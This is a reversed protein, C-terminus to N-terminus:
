AIPKAPDPTPPPLTAQKGIQQLQQASKQMMGIHNQLDEPSPTEPEPPESGFEDITDALGPYTGDEVLQNIRAQRLADPNILAMAVDLQTSQAKQLAIASKETDSMQWLPTWEYFISDDGHGLASRIILDDLPALVPSLENRQVSSISDYYNRTDVEGGGETGGLGKGKAMGLLRSVPIGSAGAAITLYEQVLNPLSGFQTQKRNWTEKEDLLLSNVTSKAQNALMFRAILKQSADPDSLKQSLGPINIVDMKADTVMSSIGGIVNQTAKIADDVSQLVSDGWQNPGIIREDPLDNGILPIVRSPHIQVGYSAVGGSGDINTVDSAIQYYEPRNFWDNEIDLIRQGTALEYQHFVAIWKLGGKGITEPDLPESAKGDATGLVIVSGGYLRAQVVAKRLKRKVDLRKEEDEIASIQDQGAQWDRWERTADDAPATVVRRAIWDSRYAAELQTRDLPDFNYASAMRSDKATGLGNVFNYLSDRLQVIKGM